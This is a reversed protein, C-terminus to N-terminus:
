MIEVNFAFESIRLLDEQKEFKIKMLQGTKLFFVSPPWVKLMPIILFQFLSDASM